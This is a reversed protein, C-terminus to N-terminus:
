SARQTRPAALRSRVRELWTRATFGDGEFDYSVMFADVFEPLAEDNYAKLLAGLDRAAPGRLEVAEAVFADVAKDATEYDV